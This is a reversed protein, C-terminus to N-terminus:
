ISGYDTQQIKALRFSLKDGTRSLKITDTYMRTESRSEGGERLSSNISLVSLGLAKNLSFRSPAAPDMHIVEIEKLPPLEPDHATTKEHPRRRAVATMVLKSRLINHYGAEFEEKNANSEFQTNSRDQKNRKFCARKKQKVAVEDLLMKRLITSEFDLNHNRQGPDM